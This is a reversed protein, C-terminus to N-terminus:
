RLMLPALTEGGCSSCFAGHAGAGCSSCIRDGAPPASTARPARTAGSTAVKEPRTPLLLVIILGLPGLLTGWVVGSVAQRKSKGALYGIFTWIIVWVLSYALLADQVAPMIQMM